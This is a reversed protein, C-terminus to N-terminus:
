MASMLNMMFAKTAYGSDLSQQQASSPPFTPRPTYTSPASLSYHQRSQVTCQYRANALFFPLSACTQVDQLNVCADQLECWSAKTKDPAAIRWKGVLRHLHGMSDDAHPLPLSLQRVVALM